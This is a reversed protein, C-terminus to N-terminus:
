PQKVCFYSGLPSLETLIVEDNIFASASGGDLNLADAIQIGTKEEFLKLIEPTDVLLPGNFASQPSYISLFVVKNEGTTAVIMRRANKDQTNTTKQKLSNEILLPGSQLAHVLKDKPLNATIRPTDFENITFFGNTLPAQVRDKVLERNSIFLGTPEFSTTYFGGNVLLSCNNQQRASTASLTNEFNSHLAIDGANTIIQWVVKLSQNKFELTLADQVFPNGLVSPSDAPTKTSQPVFLQSVLAGSAVLGLLFILKKFKM